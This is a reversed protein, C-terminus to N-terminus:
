KYDCRAWVTSMKPYTVEAQTGYPDTETNRIKVFDSGDRSGAHGHQEKDQETGHADRAM